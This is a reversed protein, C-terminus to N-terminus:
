KRAIAQPIESNRKEILAELESKKQNSAEERTQYASQDASIRETEFGEDTLYTYNATGECLGDSEIYSFGGGFGHEFADLYLKREDEVFSFAQRGQAIKNKEILITPVSHIQPPINRSNQVDVFDFQEKLEATGNIMNLLKICHQCQRSFYLIHKVNTSNSM